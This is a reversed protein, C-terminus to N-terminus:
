HCSGQCFGDILGMPEGRMWRAEFALAAAM